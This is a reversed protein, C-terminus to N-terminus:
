KTLDIAKGAVEVRKAGIFTFFGLLVRALQLRERENLESLEVTRATM